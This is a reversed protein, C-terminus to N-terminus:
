NDHDSLVRTKWLLPEPRGFLYGQGFEVGLDLLRDKEESNEVGEAVVMVGLDGAMAALGHVLARNAPNHELERVLCMDIKLLDPQLRLISWLDIEGAGVDDIALRVGHDRFTAAARKTVEYSKILTVESLELVVMGPDLGGLAGKLDPSLLTADSLNLGLFGSGVAPAFGAIAARIAALELELRMGADGAAELWQPPSSFPFRALGEHGVVLRERDDNARMDVIPQYVIEPGGDALVAAIASPGPRGYSPDFIMDAMQLTSPDYGLTKVLSLEFITENDEQYCRVDGGLARALRRAVSLGLGLPPRQGDRALQMYSSEFVREYDQTPVSHGDCAVEVVIKSHGQVIRVRIDEAGVYTASRLLNRVIRNVLRPHARAVANGSVTLKARRSAAFGAVADDVVPRLDVQVVTLEGLDPSSEMLLDDVIQGAEVLETTLLEIVKNRVGSNFDRTRDRLLEALGLAATLPNSMQDPNTTLVDDRRRGVDLGGSTGAYGRLSSSNAPHKGIVSM